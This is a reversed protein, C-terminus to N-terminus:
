SGALRRLAPEDFGRRPNFGDRVVIARLAVRRLEGPRPADRQTRTAAQSSTTTESVSRGGRLSKTGGPAPGVRWGWARRWAHWGKHPHTPGTRPACWRGRGASAVEPTLLRAAQGAACVRPQMASTPPQAAEVDELRNITDSPARAPKAPVYDRPSRRPSKGNPSGPM